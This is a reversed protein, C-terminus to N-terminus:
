SDFTPGLKIKLRNSVSVYHVGFMKSIKRLSNGEQYLRYMEELTEDTIYESWIKEYYLKLKLRMHHIASESRGIERAMQADSRVGKKHLRKLKAIEQNTWARGMFYIEGELGYSKNLTV